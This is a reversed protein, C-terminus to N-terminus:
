AAAAFMPSYQDSAAFSIWAKSLPLLTTPVVHCYWALTRAPSLAGTSVVSGLSPEVPHDSVQIIEDLALCGFQMYRQISWMMEGSAFAFAVSYKPSAGELLPAHARVTSLFWQLVKWASSSSYKLCIQYQVVGTASQPSSRPVTQM